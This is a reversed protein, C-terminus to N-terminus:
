NKPKFSDLMQQHEAKTMGLTTIEWVYSSGAVTTSVYLAGGPFRDSVGETQLAPLGGVELDDTTVATDPDVASIELAASIGERALKLIDESSAGMDMVESIEAISVNLVLPAELDIVEYTTGDPAPAGPPVLLDSETPERPLEISFEDTDLFYPQSDATEEMTEPSVAVDAGAKDATEELTEPSVAVDAGAKDAPDEKDVSSSGCGALGVGALIVAALFATIRQM